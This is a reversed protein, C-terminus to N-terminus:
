ATSRASPFREDFNRQLETHERDALILRRTLEPNLSDSYSKITNILNRTRDLEDRENMTEEFALRRILMPAPSILVGRRLVSATERYARVAAFGDQVRDFQKSVAVYMKRLRVSQAASIDQAGGTSASGTQEAPHPTVTASAGEHEANFAAINENERLGAIWDKAAQGYKDALLSLGLKLAIAASAVIALAVPIFFHGTPDRRDIPNAECYAYPNDGGEDFPSSADLATFRMLSPLYFRYGNGLPYADTISDENLGTYRLTLVRSM